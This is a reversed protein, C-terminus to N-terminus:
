YRAAPTERLRRTLEPWVERLRTLQNRLVSVDIYKVAMEQRAKDALEGTGLLEKINVDIQSKSPWADCASEIDLRDLPLTILHEYLRAIAITGIAVKFGHSPVQGQHTHQQMDWLHSFQHESGSAPRSSKTWQMAFGGMMLGETLKRTAELEGNRVGAPDSLAGMLPGQVLEWAVSDIPELGLADALIWDAGATIKALLDAYGAAEDAEACSM